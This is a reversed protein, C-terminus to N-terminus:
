ALHSRVLAYLYESLVPPTIRRGYWVAQGATSGLRALCIVRGGGSVSEEQLRCHWRGSDCIYCRRIHPIHYGHGSGEILGGMRSVVNRSLKIEHDRQSDRANVKNM